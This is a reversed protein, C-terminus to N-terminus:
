IPLIAEGSYGFTKSVIEGELTALHDCRRNPRPTTPPTRITPSLATGTKDSISFGDEKM